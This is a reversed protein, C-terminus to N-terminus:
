SESYSPYRKLNIASWGEAKNAYVAKGIGVFSRASIKKSKREKMTSKVEIFKNWNGSSSYLNSLLAHTRGNEPALELARNVVREEM